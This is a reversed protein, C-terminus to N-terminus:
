AARPLDGPTAPLEVTAVTQEGTSAVEVRAGLDDAARKAIALGRGRGAEVRRARGANRIELRLAGDRSSSTVQVPGDGHEAANALLNALLQALRGADLKARSAPVARAGPLDALAAGMRDIQLKVLSAIAGTFGTRSARDLALGIVSAAGRLEHEADAVRAARRRLALLLAAAALWGAVAALWGSAAILGSV